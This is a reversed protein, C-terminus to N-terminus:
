AILGIRRRIGEDRLSVETGILDDAESGCLWVLARAPWDPHIHVSPDLQSVPNIGSDKIQVQMDTAVTGPSLGIARIGRDRTEKDACRTLMAAAAKSACYPSWGELPHSAAGSSVTLLTGGGAQLMVPLAARMGHFVGKVNIDIAKGWAEPDAGEMPAIPEIVGANNVLVDLRGFAAVTADIAAEVEWYRSVDCPIALASPGIEGALDAIEERSRALLAVQAGAAAFARAAAAGIGRSAGTIVVSKRSLDDMPREEEAQTRWLGTRGAARQRLKARLGASQLADAARM